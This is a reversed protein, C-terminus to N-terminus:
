RLRGRHHRGTGANNVLFDFTERQWTKSLVDRVKTAFADFSASKGVDLSLAVAKRGLKEIAAVVAAAEKEGSRYTLIVDTGQEALKMASNQGLGRSGGTIIAITPTNM